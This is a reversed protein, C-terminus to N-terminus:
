DTDTTGVALGDTIDVVGASNKNVHAIYAAPTGGTATVTFILDNVRLLHAADNFYGDKRVVTQADTTKYYWLSNVVLPDVGGLNTAIMSLGKPDFAM